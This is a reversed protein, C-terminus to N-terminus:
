RNDRWSSEEMAIIKNQLKESRRLRIEIRRRSADGQRSAGWSIHQNRLIFQGASYPLVYNIKPLRREVRAKEILKLVSLARMMGLDLNSGAQVTRMREQVIDMSSNAISLPRSDTHGIVEITDCNYERSLQQLKPIIDKNFGFLFSRTVRASGSKFKYRPDNESLTVIPPSDTKVQSKSSIFIAILFMAALFTFIEAQKLTSTEM